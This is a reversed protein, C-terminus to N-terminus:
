AMESDFISIIRNIESLWDEALPNIVIVKCETEKAITNAKTKDFQAQVLIFNINKAKITNIIDKLYMPDPEKGDKEIAIQNLGYDQAFYSLAPHYIIFTNNKKSSFVQRAISDTTNIDKILSEYNVTFNIKEKPYEKSLNDLINKAMIKAKSPSMWIHPNENDKIGFDDKQKIIKITKKNKITPLIQSIEFPLNGIAFYLKSDLLLAMKNPSIGSNAPDMGKGILTNIKLYDKSIRKVLYKQPLVSISIQKNDKIRSKCSTVLFSIMLIIVFLFSHSSKFKLKM